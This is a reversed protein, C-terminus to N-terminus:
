KLKRIDVVSALCAEAKIQGWLRECARARLPSPKERYRRVALSYARRTAKQASKWHKGCITENFRDDRKFTHTCFPICCFRRGREVKILFSVNERTWQHRAETAPDPRAKAEEVM